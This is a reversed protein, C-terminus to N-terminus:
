KVFVKVLIIGILTTIFTAILSPLIIDITSNYSARLAIITAPIIQISTSNIVVLMVKNKHNAMNEIAKIGMPTSAGGMGLMNASLNLSLYQYTQNNENKFLFKIPRKLRKALSKDLEAKQIIKLVSLWIAYIAFLKLSLMIGSNVGNLMTPMVDEPKRLVILYISAIIVIFFIINM